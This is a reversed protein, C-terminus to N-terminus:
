WRELLSDLAPVAETLRPMIGLTSWQPQNAWSECHNHLLRIQSCRDWGHLLTFFFFWCAVYNIKWTVQVRFPLKRSLKWNSRWLALWPPSRDLAATLQKVGRTQLATVADSLPSAELERRTQTKARSHTQAWRIFRKHLTQICSSCKVRRILRQWPSLWLTSPPTM